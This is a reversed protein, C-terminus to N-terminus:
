CGNRAQVGGADARVGLCRDLGAPLRPDVLSSFAKMVWDPADFTPLLVSAVEILLWGRDRLGCRGPLRQPAQTRRDTVDPGGRSIWVAPPRLRGSAGALTRPRPGERETPGLRNAFLELSFRRARRLALQGLIVPM